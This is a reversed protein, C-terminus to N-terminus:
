SLEKLAEEAASEEALQKSFGEGKGFLRGDIYVGVMFKRAHDPGETKLIRYQPSQKTKTQAVEQLYSKADKPPGSSIEEKFLPLLTQEIFERVADVGGDLFIAGLLAEYTNAMLQPNDRGGSVEEGKSLRLFHGLRLKKAAKALSTTKVIYSRLNTLDGENDLPRLKYLITSIILSLVADGLFELRENSEVVDRVENLTSRHTFATKYIQKKLLSEDITIM